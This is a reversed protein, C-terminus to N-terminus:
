STPCLCLHTTREIAKFIQYIVRPDAANGFCGISDLESSIGNIDRSYQLLVYNGNRKEFISTIRPQSKKKRRIEATSQLAMLGIKHSYACFWVRERRHSHVTFDTLKIDEYTISNPFHYKLVKQCFKDIECHFVNEWGMWEAAM